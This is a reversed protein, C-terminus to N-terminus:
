AHFVQPPMEATLFDVKFIELNRNIRDEAVECWITRFRETLMATIVQSDLLLM